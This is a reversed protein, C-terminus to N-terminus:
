LKPNKNIIYILNLHVILCKLPSNFKSEICRFSLSYQYIWFCFTTGWPKETVAIGPCRSVVGMKM